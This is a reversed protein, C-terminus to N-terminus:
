EDKDEILSALSIKYNGKGLRKAEYLAADASEYLENFSARRGQIKALGASCEIKIKRDNEYYNFKLKIIISNLRNICEQFDGKLYLVFEDGGLRGFVDDDTISECVIHSIKKLLQDGTIHGFSDNITKFNDVDFLCFLGNGNNKIRNTILEESYRRNWTQTLADVRAYMLNTMREAMTASYDQVLIFVKEVDKKNETPIFVFTLKTWIYDDDRKIRVHTMFVYDHNKVRKYLDIDRFMDLKEIDDKHLYNACLNWFWEDMISFNAEHHFYDYYEQKDYIFVNHILDYEMVVDNMYKLVKKYVAYNKTEDLVLGSIKKTFSIRVSEYIINNDIYSCLVSFDVMIDDSSNTGRETVLIQALVNCKTEDTLYGQYDATDIDYTKSFITKNVEIVKSPEEVKDYFVSADKTKIYKECANKVTDMFLQYLDERM